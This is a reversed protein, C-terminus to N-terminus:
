KKRKIKSFLGTILAIGSVGLISLSASSAINTKAPKEPKKPPEEKNFKPVITFKEFTELKGDKEAKYPVSFKITKENLKYGKGKTVEKLEYNGDKLEKKFSYKGDKSEFKDIVKGDKILEWTSNEVAKQETDVINFTLEDAFSVSGITLISGLVLTSLIIKNKFNKM